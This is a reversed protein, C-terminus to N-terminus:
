LNARFAISQGTLSRAPVCFETASGTAKQVWGGGFSDLLPKWCGRMKEDSERAAPHFLAFLRIDQDVDVPQQADLQAKWNEKKGYVNAACKWAEKGLCAIAQLNPMHNVTFRLVDSIFKQIEPSDALKASCRDDNRLLNAFASGYLKECKIKRAFEFLRKNTRSGTERPKCEWCSHHYPRLDGKRMRERILFAPAFDQALLLLEGDWDGYLSETGYLRTEHPCIDPDYINTYSKQRFDKIWSPIKPTPTMCAGRGSIDASAIAAKIPRVEDL